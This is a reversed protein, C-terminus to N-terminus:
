LLGCAQPAHQPHQPVVHPHHLVCGQIGLPHGHHGRHHHDRRGHRARHPGHLGRHGHRAHGYRDRSALARLYVQLM